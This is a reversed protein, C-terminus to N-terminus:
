SSGEERAAAPPEGAVDNAGGPDTSPSEVDPAAPEPAAEADDPDSRLGEQCRADAALDDLEDQLERTVRDTRSAALEARVQDEVEDLEPVEAEEIPGRPVVVHWGIDTRLPKSVEGSQLGFAAEEFKPGIEGRQVELVGGSAGYSPDDSFSRSIRSMAARSPDDGLQRAIRSALARAEAETKAGSKGDVRVLVHQVTRRERSGGFQEPNDALFAELRERSAKGNAGRDEELKELYLQSRLDRRLQGRTRGEVELQRAFRKEDGGFSREVLEDVATDVEEDTVEIGAQEALDRRAADRVLQEVVQARLARGERSGRSPAEGARAQIRAFAEDVADQYQGNTIDSEGVRCAVDDGLEDGLPGCGAAVFGAVLLVFFGLLPTAPMRNM